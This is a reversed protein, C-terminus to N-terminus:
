LAQPRRIPSSISVHVGTRQLRRPDPSVAKTSRVSPDAEACLTQVHQCQQLMAYLEDCIQPANAEPSRGSQKAGLLVVLEALNLLQMRASDEPLPGALRSAGGHAFSRKRLAGAFLELDGGGPLPAGFLDHWPVALERRLQVSTGTDCSSLGRGRGCRAWLAEIPQLRRVLPHKQLDLERYMSSQVGSSTALFTEAMATTEGM